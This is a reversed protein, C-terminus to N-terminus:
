PIAKWIRYLGRAVAVEGSVRSVRSFGALALAREYRAAVQEEGVVRVPSDRDATEAALEAGILLGSLFDAAGDADLEGALSRVRISFLHATVAPDSLALRVGDDFAQDDRGPTGMVRGILTAERVAAFLEGTLYTRFATIVGGTVRIWKCHTGPAVMLGSEGPEFLGLAQTEEGRMVDGLGQPTLAVGPVIRLDRGAVPRALQAALGGADAPCFVYPAEVWGQRSGAMGAILVPAEGLWDGAVEELVGAFADSGLRGAGRPDVRRDLVRGDAGLRMVRLNSTGWDVGILETM